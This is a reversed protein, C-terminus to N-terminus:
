AGLTFRGCLYSYKNFADYNCKYNAQNLQKTEKLYQLHETAM